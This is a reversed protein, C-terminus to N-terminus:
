KASSAPKMSTVTLKPVDTGSRLTKVGISLTLVARQLEPVRDGNVSEAMSIMRITGDDERTQVYEVLKGSKFAIPRDGSKVGVPQGHEDTKQWTGYGIVLVPTSATADIM